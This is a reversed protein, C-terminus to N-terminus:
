RCGRKENSEEQLTVVPNRCGPVTPAPRWRGDSRLGPRLLSGGPTPIPQGVTAEPSRRPAFRRKATCRSWNTLHCCAGTGHIIPASTICVATCNYSKTLKNQLQDRSVGTSRAGPRRRSSARPPHHILVASSPPQEAAAPCCRAGPAPARGTPGANPLTSAAAAPRRLSPALRRAARPHGCRRGARRPRDGGARPLQAPRLAPQRCAHALATRGGAAFRARVRAAYRALWDYSRPEARQRKAEDYFAPALPALTPADLDVESLARFFLTM